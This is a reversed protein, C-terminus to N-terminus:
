RGQVYIVAMIVIIAFFQLGVRLRMLKNSRSPGTEGGKFMSWLGIALVIAVAAVAVGVLINGWPM